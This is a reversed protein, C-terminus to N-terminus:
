PKLTNPASTEEDSDGSFYKEIVTRVIPAAKSGGGSKELVCAVAIQPNDYPAYAIYIGNTYIESIQASGTKAAVPVKCGEFASRATGSTVVMRMGKTVAEYAEPTMQIRSVEEPHITIEAAGQGAQISKVLHPRYLVGGNAIAATYCALQLPTVLTDSQGIATQLVDGPFWTGGRQERNQPSAVSGSAEEDELEIGTKSGFGFDRAYQDLKEIGLRRGTDFFFINCSDRIAESVNESGHTDGSQNYIWCGPQYDRYYTYKGTDEITEDVTIVGEQLAAFAVCPKFTSGPTYTGMLARNILPRASNELLESYSSNFKEIDYSPYSAMTLVDGSNVDLVVVAGSDCDNGGEASGAEDAINIINEKLAAEATKQLEFDITLSVNRGNVAAKEISSEINSGGFTQQAASLGDEGRLYKELYKELGQKGIRSNINYGEDQHEEYEERSINAVRGLIHSAVGPAAYDRVPQVVVRSGVFGASQEKITTVVDISVDSAFVYPTSASFSREEMDMRVEALRTLGTGTYGDLNYKQILQYLIDNASDDASFGHKEKWEKEASSETEGEPQSSAPYLSGEGGLDFGYNEGDYSFVMEANRTQDLRDFVYCLNYILRNLMEDDMGTQKQIQVSYGSRNTVIDRGYRDYIEGRPAELVISRTTRRDSRERYDRGEVLQLQILGAFIIAACIFIIIRAATFRGKM